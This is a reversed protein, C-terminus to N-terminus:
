MCNVISGCITCNTIKGDKVITVIECPGVQACIDKSVVMSAVLVAGLLCGIVYKM